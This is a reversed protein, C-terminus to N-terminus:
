SRAGLMMAAVAILLSSPPSSRRQPLDAKSLIRINKTDLQEQAGTERARVLFAEYVSRSAQVDRELERLGVLAENTNFTKQKLAELNDVLMQENSKASDYETGASRAIRNVENQIVGRLKEAQAQIEIVAPHREGLTTMQEAERRMIEAYQTRLATITASQVAEPFAGIDDKKQQMLEVQELRAKAEATKARAAGVQNNAETLQQEAVPQGNTNIINHSAKFDEVREESERVRDKLEKLRASLSQSVQRAADARVQTQEVLYAQAIANAIRVAKEPDRSTVDIDIVFTREARKVVVRRKLENLAALVAGGPAAGKGILTSLM